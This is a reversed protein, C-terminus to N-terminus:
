FLEEADESGPTRANPATLNFYFLHLLLAWSCPLVLWSLSLGCASLCLITDVLLLSMEVKDHAKESLASSCLEFPQLDILVRSSQFSQLISDGHLSPIEIFCFYVETKYIMTKWIRILNYSSIHTNTVWDHRVRQSKMSRLGGPKETWPIRWTLISSYTAMEKELPDEQDLSPVWTEQM